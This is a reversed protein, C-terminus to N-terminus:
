YPACFCNGMESKAEMIFFLPWYKVLQPTNTTFIHGIKIQSM